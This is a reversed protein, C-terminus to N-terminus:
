LRSVLAVRFTHMKGNENVSVCDGVAFRENAFQFGLEDPMDTGIDYHFAWGGAPLHVLHGLCDESNRHFRAIRCARRHQRWLEPDIRSDADLPAIMVYAVGADGEPRGSERALEMRVQRFQAPLSTNLVPRSHTIQM